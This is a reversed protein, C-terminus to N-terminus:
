LLGIVLVLPYNLSMLYELQNLQFFRHLIFMNEEMTFINYTESYQVSNSIIETVVM